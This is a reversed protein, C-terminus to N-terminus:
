RLFMLKNMMVDRVHPVSFLALITPILALDVANLPDRCFRWFGLGLIKIVLQPVCLGALARLSLPRWWIRRTRVEGCAIYVCFNLYPEISWFLHHEGEAFM